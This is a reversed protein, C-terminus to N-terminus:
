RAQRVAERPYHTAGDLRIQEVVERVASIVADPRDFQIAHHSDGVVIQRGRTSLRALQGQIRIWEEQRRRRQRADGLNDSPPPLGAALVILPLDGLGGAARAELFSEYYLEKMNEAVTRPEFATTIFRYQERTVGKPVYDKTPGNMVLRAIGIQKLAQAFISM